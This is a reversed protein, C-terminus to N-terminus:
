LCLGNHATSHLFLAQEEHSFIGHTMDQLRISADVTLRGGYVMLSHILM